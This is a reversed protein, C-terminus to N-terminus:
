NLNTRVLECEVWEVVWESTEEIMKGISVMVWLSGSMQEAVQDWNRVCRNAIARQDVRVLTHTVHEIDGELVSVIHEVM